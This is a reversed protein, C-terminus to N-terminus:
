LSLISLWSCISHFRTELSTGRLFTRSRAQVLFTYQNCHDGEPRYVASLIWMWSYIINDGRTELKEGEPLHLPQHSAGLLLMASHIWITNWSTGRLGLCQLSHILSAIVSRFSALYSNHTFTHHQSRAWIHLLVKIWLLKITPSSDQPHHGPAQGLKKKKM